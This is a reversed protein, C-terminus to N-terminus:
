HSVPGGSHEVEQIRGQKGESNQMKVTFDGITVWLDTELSFAKLPHCSCAKLGYAM